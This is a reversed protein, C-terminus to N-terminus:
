FDIIQYEHEVLDIYLLKNRLITGQGTLLKVVEAAQISAITAPIFSPNGIEMEVGREQDMPYIRDLTRDGPLITTVQGYWGAIAGHIMPIVLDECADQLIKRIGIQDLADIVVDAEKIIERVNSADLFRAITYLKTKPDVSRVRKQAEDVKYNGLNDVTSLLQRNLNTEDFVDGDVITITGIGIRTLMELVYGGLGGSGVICVHSDRLKSMEEVSLIGNKKYRSM